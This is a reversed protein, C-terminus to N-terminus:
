NKPGGQLANDRHFFTFKHWVHL